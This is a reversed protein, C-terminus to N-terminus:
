SKKVAEDSVEGGGIGFKGPLAKAIADLGDDDLRQYLAEIEPKTRPTAIPEGNIAAVYMLQSVVGVWLPNSSSEGMAEIFRLKAIPGPKRLTFTRGRSDTATAEANADAIIRQSPTPVSNDITVDM